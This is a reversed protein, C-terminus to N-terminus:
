RSCRKIEGRAEAHAGRIGSGSHACHRFRRKLLTMIERSLIVIDSNTIRDFFSLRGSINAPKKDAPDINSIILGRRQLAVIAVDINVADITGKGNM